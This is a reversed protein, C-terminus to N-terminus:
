NTRDHIRTQQIGSVRPGDSALRPPSHRYNFLATFLPLQVPLGSAQQALALPAHEHALLGVLQSRMAAVADAVAAAGVNVRIPLTNMFLGPVRDAGPGAAMRGFLVTGFVVDDRGALAALVRAWALHLLTAASTGLLRAQERVQGALQQDVPMRARAIDSGDLRADLQGFPATPETVDGLLAAFYAQHEARSTGLRAQAVFDRFPLPAPLRDHQGALLATIEGMVVNTATHDMVVHHFQLLALWRGIGPEAATHARLLPARSLDMRAGAATTLQAVPDEDAALVVETVPLEAQRWVVQVPEPLGEWALSTRFIDHRAIVTNLATLFSQLRDRTDFRLMTSQLYVDPEGDGTVLHHYLMGEQLPALPYIDAVNAAGGDVAQVIQTLQDATLDVLTVMDPTVKTADAPIKNPPVATEDAGAQLALRAPTPSEFLARVPIRLGSERLRAVLRMALLSHGGLEFFNDDPGVRELGLVAAFVACLIEEAVTRPARGDGAAFEPAPLAARDLKGNATRPLAEMVVVASPVMHEPLRAAAYQRLEAPDAHEECVVYAVLREDCVIVAVQTVAPHAALVQQVEGPEIRYGRVKVQDDARGAFAMMGDRTWRALDGTRYMREGGTGFPCATFREATLGPRGLYGRALQAGAIYLEGTVGAPVPHLWRDLIYLRTNAVPTGTPVQEGAALRTTAVGITAETPGYHNFVGRDGAQRALASVWTASAAEGGLVLSRRPLVGDLGCGAALAVLHSPAGKLFDIARGSLYASVADPDTIQDGDLLHLVGGTTLATFIVTNGLDTVPAQLLLYRGGPTGWGVREPVTSAYNALAGHSVVVGKPAGTSGSTYILYAAQQPSPFLTAP